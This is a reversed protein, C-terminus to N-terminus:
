LTLMRKISLAVNVPELITMVPVNSPLQLTSNINVMFDSVFKLDLINNNDISYNVILPSKTKFMVNDLTEDLQLRYNLKNTM